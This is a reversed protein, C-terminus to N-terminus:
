HRHHHHHGHGFYFPKSYVYPQSYVYPGSYGQDYYEYPGYPQDYYYYRERYHRAAAVTAITGFVGLIAGLAAANGRHWHRRASMDITAARAAESRIARDAASAPAIQLSTLTVAAALAVAVPRSTRMSM